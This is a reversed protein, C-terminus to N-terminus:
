PFTIATLFEVQDTVTTLGFMPVNQDHAWRLYRFQPAINLKWLHVEVGLGAAFGHDSPNTGSLNGLDRFAPGADIFPKVFPKVLPLQFRYKLLVPYEWTVVHQQQFLEPPTQGIQVGVRFRLEHYLVDAEVSLHLPLRVELTGGAIWRQPASIGLISVFPPGPLPACCPPLDYNQFDQTLGAGGMLGVSVPQADAALIPMLIIWFFFWTRMMAKSAANPMWIAFSEQGTGAVLIRDDEIRRRPEAIHTTFALPVGMSFSPSAAM